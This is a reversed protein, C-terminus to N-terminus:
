ESTLLLVPARLTARQSLVPTESCSQRYQWRESRSRVLPIGIFQTQRAAVSRALPLRTSLLPASTGAKAAAGVAACPQILPNPIAATGGPLGGSAVNRSM